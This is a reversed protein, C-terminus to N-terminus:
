DKFYSHSNSIVILLKCIFFCKSLNLFKRWILLKYTSLESTESVTIGM